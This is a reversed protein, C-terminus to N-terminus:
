FEARRCGDGVCWHGSFFGPRHNAGGMYHGELLGIPNREADYIRGSFRGRPLPSYAMPNNRWTGKLFGEFQGTRDVYKGVFIQAGTSDIGWEGKLTGIIRGTRSMWLGYFIGQGGEDRGWHGMLHGRRPREMEPEWRMAQISIANGYGVEVLTDLSELDAMDFTLDLQESRYSLTVIDDTNSPPIFIRAALGDFHWSTHSVWALEEPVYVGEDNYRPLPYDGREFRILHTVVIAGRSLTLTGSWDTPETVNTDHPLNGWRLRLCYIEPNEQNEVSDVVPSLAVPDDYEEGEGDALMLSLEEEGFDASEEDVAEYGGFDEFDSTGSQGSDTSSSCGGLIFGLGALLALWLFIKKM